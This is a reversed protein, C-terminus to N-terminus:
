VTQKGMIMAADYERRVDFSPCAKAVKPFDRHGLIEAKPYRGTLEILLRMLSEKQADTRTDKPTKGDKALGGVYCIGVSHSNYGSVHAGVASEDRGKEVKGDLCILYHYGEAKFGRAKHWRRIDSM